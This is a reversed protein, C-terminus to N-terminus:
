SCNFKWQYVLYAQKPYIWFSFNYAGRYKGSTMWKPCSLGSCTLNNEYFSLDILRTDTEGLASVNDFNTIFLLDSSDYLTYITGNFNLVFDSLASANTMNVSIEFETGTVNANNLPTPNVFFIPIKSSDSEIGFFRFGDSFPQSASYDSTTMM